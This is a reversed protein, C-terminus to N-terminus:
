TDIFDGIGAFEVIEDFRGEIERRRMGMIAGQLFVNERGTLDPHFGAALELLGFVRGEAAIRGSTPRLTRSLLKLLTSKGSGNRGIVGLTRGRELVFSVDRLAWFTERGYGRTGPKFLNLAAEQFTRAREHHLTFRKSVREFRVAAM